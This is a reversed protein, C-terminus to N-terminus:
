VKLDVMRRITIFGVIYLLILSVFGPLFAPDDAVDLYFSPYFAFLM